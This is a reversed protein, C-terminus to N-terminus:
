RVTIMALLAACVAWFPAVFLLGYAISRPFM